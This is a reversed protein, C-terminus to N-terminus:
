ARRRRLVFAGGLMLLLTAPEPVGFVIRTPEGPFTTGTALHDWQPQSFPAPSVTGPSLATLAYVDGPQFRSSSLGTASYQGGVNLLNLTGLGSTLTGAYGLTGTATGGSIIGTSTGSEGLTMTGVGSVPESFTLATIEFVGAPGYDVTVTASNETTIREGLFGNYYHLTITANYNVIDATALGACCFVVGACVFGLGIRM